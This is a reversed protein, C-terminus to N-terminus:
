KDPNYSGSGKRWARNTSRDQVKTNGKGNGGGNELSQKHAVDKGDGVKAKGTKIADRRAANNKVRKATEEPRANYDKQYALKQKSSTAMMSEM